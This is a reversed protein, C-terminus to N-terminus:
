RKSRHPIARAARESGSQRVGRDMQGRTGGIAGPVAFGSECDFYATVLCTARDGAITADHAQQRTVDGRLREGQPLGLNDPLRAKEPQGPDVTPFLCRGLGSRATTAGKRNVGKRKRAMVSEPM